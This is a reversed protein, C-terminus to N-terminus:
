PSMSMVHFAMWNQSRSNVRRGTLNATTVQVYGMRSDYVTNLVFFLTTKHSLVFLHQIYQAYCTVYGGQNRITHAKSACVAVNDSSPKKQKGSRTAISLMTWRRRYTWPTHRTIISLTMVQELPCIKGDSRCTKLTSRRPTSSLNLSPEM